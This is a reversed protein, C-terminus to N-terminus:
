GIWFRDGNIKQNAASETHMDSDSADHVSYFKFGGPIDVPRLPFKVQKLMLIAELFEELFKSRSYNDLIM